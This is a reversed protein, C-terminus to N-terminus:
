DTLVLMKQLSQLHNLIGPLNEKEMFSRLTNKGKWECSNKKFWQSKPRAQGMPGSEEFYLYLYPKRYSLEKIHLKKAAIRCQSLTILNKAEPPLPGAFDKLEDTINKIQREQSTFSLKKYFLLRIKEHPIYSKPLFAPTKFSMEPEQSWSKPELSLQHINEKLLDFYMEFGVDNLFGSQERGMLNGAGRMQLDHRAIWWGAGPQNNEKIIQLRKLAASSIKKQPPLLLYCYSEKESRGVRGRIQHLQSLGLKDAENVFLTGALSFDMGAEVITTCVLMDFRHSFFDWAVRSQLEKMQGHAVRIRVQPLLKKLDEAVQHIDQIRNHLFLIQGKRNLEKLCAQQILSKNFVHVSTQIPKRNLPPTNIVSLPRLGSLSMSLSRPIPTASLSLTDISSAFHKFGEKSKVGFLHEEDIILLGPNKFCLRNHLIRHTGILIDVKGARSNELIRHTNKLSVFRNLLEIHVPWNKFREKFNRFHQFSLLTTPTMICVQFGAEIVKFAARQAVETKGFGVDGCVLRDMPSDKGTLDYLTDKIAQAQDPTEPFAFEREFTKFDRDVPPFPKRKIQSRKSYLRILQLTMNKLQHRVKEKTRLWRKDGLQDLFNEYHSGIYRGVQHINYVPLYLKDQNKYKLILFEGPGTGFDMTSLQQFQGIGHKKHVILDGYNLHAFDFSEATHPPPIFFDPLTKEYFRPTRLLFTKEQHLYYNEPLSRNIFHILRHNQEQEAKMESFNNTQKIGLRAKTLKKFLNQKNEGGTALLVYFGQNRLSKIEETWHPNKFFDKINKETKLTPDPKTTKEPVCFQIQRIKKYRPFLPVSGGPSDPLHWILPSLSPPFHDLSIFPSSTPKKLFLPQLHASKLPKKSKQSLPDFTKIELIEEGTLQIRLAGEFPTFLDLVAGRMSFEGPAEVRDTGTFAMKKLSQFFFAPLNEGVKIPLTQNKLAEPSCTKKLLAQPTIFFIDTKKAQHAASLWRIRHIESLNKAPLAPNTGAEPPSEELSFGKWYPEFFSLATKLDKFFGAKGGVLVHPGSRCLPSSLLYALQVPPPLGSWLCKEGPELKQIRTYFEYPEEM